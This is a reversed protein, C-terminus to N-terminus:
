SVRFTVVCENAGAGTTGNDAVETVCAVSMGAHFEVAPEYTESFGAGNATAAQTPIAFTAVPVTTGVTVDAAPADYLKLYLVSTAVNIAHIGYLLGGGAFIEDETEDIDLQKVFRSVAM